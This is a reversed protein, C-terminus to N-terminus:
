NEPILLLVQLFVFTCSSWVLFLYQSQKLQASGKFRTKGLVMPIDFLRKMSERTNRGPFDDKTLFVFPGRRAGYAAGKRPGM